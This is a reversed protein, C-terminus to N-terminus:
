YISTFIRVLKGNDVVYPFLKTYFTTDEDMHEEHNEWSCSHLLREDTIEWVGFSINSEKDISVNKILYKKVKKFRIFDFCISVLKVKLM